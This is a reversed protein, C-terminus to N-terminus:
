RWREFVARLETLKPPKALVCDVNMPMEGEDSMRRGWGTLLVIHTAPSMAKVAKAVQNGDVRPMSLDTIVTAFPQGRALRDRFADIGEQGGHAAVVEHGDRQLVDCM